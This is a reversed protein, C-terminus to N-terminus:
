PRAIAHAPNPKLGYKLHNGEVVVVGLATQLYLRGNVLRAVSALAPQANEPMPEPAKPEAFDVQLTTPTESPPTWTQRADHSGQAPAPPSSPLERVTPTTAPQAPATQPQAQSLWVLSDSGLLIVEAVLTKIYLTGEHCIIDRIPYWQQRKEVFILLNLQMAPGRSQRNRTWWERWLLKAETYNIHYGPPVSRRLYQMTGSQGPSPVPVFGHEQLTQHLVGWYESDQRVVVAVVQDATIKATAVLGRRKALLQVGNFTSEVRLNQNSALTTEGYVFQRILALDDLLTM